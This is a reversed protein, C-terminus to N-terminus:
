PNSARVVGRLEAVPKVLDILVPLRTEAVAVNGGKDRVTLRLYVKAPMGEPLQWTHSGTNAIQKDGIPKWEGRPQEAWELSIPRPGLNKDNAKWQIVLADKQTPSPEPRYLEAEPVKTDLELRMAPPENAKPELRSTQGAKSRVILTFGYTGDQGLLVSLTRRMPEGPRGPVAPGHEAEVRQWNLGDDQTMYLDVSGIGSPGSKSVEYELTVRRNNVVEKALEKDASPPTAPTTPEKQPDGSSAAVVNAPTEM